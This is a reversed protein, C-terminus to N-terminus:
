ARRQKRRISYGHKKVEKCLKRLFGISMCIGVTGLSTMMVYIREDKPGRENDDHFVHVSVIAEDETAGEPREVDVLM